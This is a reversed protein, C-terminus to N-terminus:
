LCDLVAAARLAASAFVAHGSGARMLGAADACVCAFATDSYVDFVSNMCLSASRRHLVHVPMRRPRQVQMLHLAAWAGSANERHSSFLFTLRLSPFPVNCCKCAGPPPLHDCLQSPIVRPPAPCASQTVIPQMNGPSVQRPGLRWTEFRTSVCRRNPAPSAAHGSLRFAQGASILPGAVM